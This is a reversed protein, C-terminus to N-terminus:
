ELLVQRWGWRWSRVPSLAARSRASAAVGRHRRIRGSPCCRERGRLVEPPAPCRYHPDTPPEGREDQLLIHPVTHSTPWTSDPPPSRRSDTAGPLAILIFRSVPTGCPSM